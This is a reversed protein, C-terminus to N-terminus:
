LGPPPDAVAAPLDCTHSLALHRRTDLRFLTFAEAYGALLTDFPEPTLGRRELSQRVAPDDLMAQTLVV